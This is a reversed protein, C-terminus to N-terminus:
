PTYEHRSGLETGLQLFRQLTYHTTKIGDFEKDSILLCADVSSIARVLESKTINADLPILLFAFLGTIAIKQVFYMIVRSTARSLMMQALIISFHHKEIYRFDRHLRNFMNSCSKIVTTRYFIKAIQLRLFTGISKHLM